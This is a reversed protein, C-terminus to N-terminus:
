PKLPKCPKPNLAARPVLDCVPSSSSRRKEAQPNSAKVDEPRVLSEARFDIGARLYFGEGFRATWGSLTETDLTDAIAFCSAQCSDADTVCWRFCLDCVSFGVIEAGTDRFGLVWVFGM